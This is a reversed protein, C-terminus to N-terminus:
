WESGTSSWGTPSLGVYPIKLDTFSLGLGEIKNVTDQRIWVNLPDGGGYRQAVWDYYDKFKSIIKM